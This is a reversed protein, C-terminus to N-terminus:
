ILHCWSDYSDKSTDNNRCDLLPIGFM